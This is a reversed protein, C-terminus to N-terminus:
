EIKRQVFVINDLVTAEQGGPGTARRELADVRTREWEAEALGLSQLTQEPTPFTHGPPAWSWPARSGHDVLLLRGGPAVARTARRLVETRPNAALFSACVLDFEGEPFTRTLDHLATSVRDSVGAREANARVHDLATPSIEVAVVSWGRRALWVADDGKGCGLELARGPELPEVLTRLATGPRGRTHPSGARYHEEWFREPNARMERLPDKM